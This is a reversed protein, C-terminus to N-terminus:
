LSSTLYNAKLFYKILKTLIELFKNSIKDDENLKNPKGTFKTINSKNKKSSM